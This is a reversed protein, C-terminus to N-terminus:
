KIKIIVPKRINNSNIIETIDCRCPSGNEQDMVIVEDSEIEGLKNKIYKFLEYWTM